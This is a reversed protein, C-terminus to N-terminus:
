CEVLTAFVGAPYCAGLLWVALCGVCSCAARLQVRRQAVSRLVCLGRRENQKTPSRWKCLPAHTTHPQRQMTSHQLRLCPPVGKLRATPGPLLVCM